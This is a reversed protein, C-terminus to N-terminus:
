LSLQTSCFQHKQVITNSFVRTLGKSQLSIWDTWGLHFWDWINMPLVSALISVEINQGGSEFFQSMLFSGSAPFSQLLSSPFVFSSIAPYCWQSLPWSNSCVGPTQSPCPPRTHQLGHPWLSSSMVSCSFQVLRAWNHRIRWLGMSPLGATKETSPMRQALISSHTTAREKELPDEHGLSVVWMEQTKQM